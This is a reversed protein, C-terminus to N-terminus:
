RWAGHIFTNLETMAEREVGFDISDQIYYKVMLVHCDGEVVDEDPFLKISHNINNVQSATLEIIHLKHADIGVIEIDGCKLWTVGQPAQGIAVLTAVSNNVDWHTNVGAPITAYDGDGFKIGKFYNWSDYNFRMEHPPSIVEQGTKDVYMDSTPRAYRIMENRTKRIFGAAM